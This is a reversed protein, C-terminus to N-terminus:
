AFPVAVAYKFVVTVSLTVYTEFCAQETQSVYKKFDQSVLSVPLCEVWVRSEEVVVRLDIYQRATPAPHSESVRDLVVAVTYWFM